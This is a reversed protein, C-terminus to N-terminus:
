RVQGIILTIDDQQEQPNFGRVEALVSDILDQPALARHRQLAEILRREGFEEGSDNFSETAGDTYLVLTDGPFLQHVELTCDWKDFLGLVTATSNLRELSGDRRLLLAPLHGCNAYRLRRSVDDYESFFFTAYDGDATNEYFLQNVSDLFQSPQAAATACQSRLNAQLNAMLLAAAIGKGAIDGIVLGLRQQGLDLFDYFDGGVRRAPLCAGAYNLTRAEPMRQPLLRAQVQRAIELEREAQREAELKQTIARRRMEVGLTLEDFGALGFSNGDPDEFRTFVGGWQPKCPPSEFRVGRSSWEEYKAQVDETIFYIRTDRGVLEAISDPQAQALALSASGDPPAVEIWRIGAIRQDVILRFRLQDLYFHLSREQDRVFIMIFHLSVYPDQKDLRLSLRDMGFPLPSNGSNGMPAIIRRFLKFRLLPQIFRPASAFEFFSDHASPATLVRCRPKTPNQDPPPCGTLQGVRPLSNEVGASPRAL